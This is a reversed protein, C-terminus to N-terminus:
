DADGEHDTHLLSIGQLCVELTGTVSLFVDKANNKVSAPAAAARFLIYNIACSKPAVGSVAQFPSVLEAIPLLLVAVREATVIQMQYKLCICSENHEPTRFRATPAVSMDSPTKQLSTSASTQSTDMWCVLVTIRQRLNAPILQVHAVCLFIGCSLGNLLFCQLFIYIYSSIYICYM